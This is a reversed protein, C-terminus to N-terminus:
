LRRDQEISGGSNWSIEDLVTEASLKASAVQARTMTKIVIELQIQATSDKFARAVWFWQFALEKNPNANSAYYLGLKMAAKTNKQRAAKELNLVAEELDSETSIPNDIQAVGLKFQADSNKEAAKRWVTISKNKHELGLYGSALVDGIQNQDAHDAYKSFEAFVAATSDLLDKPIQHKLCLDLLEEIAESDKKVARALCIKAAKAPLGARRHSKAASMSSSANVSDALLLKIPDIVLPAVSSPPAVPVQTPASTAVIIELEVPEDSQIIQANPNVTSGPVEIAYIQIADAINKFQQEGRDVFIIDKLKRHVEYHVNGAISIGGYDAMSELRAAVNVGDGFLNSGQVVVDGLNIGMRFIMPVSNPNKRNRAHLAAQCEIAFKVANVASTFEALVSDGASGFIRGGASVIMPDIISRCDQLIQLTGEEDAGMMKSFGVVDACFITTLKRQM